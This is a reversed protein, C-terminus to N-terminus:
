IHCLFSLFGVLTGNLICSVNKFDAAFEILGRISEKLLGFFINAIMPYAKQRQENELYNQALFGLIRLCRTKAKRLSELSFPQGGDFECIMTKQGLVKMTAITQLYTLVHAEEFFILIYNENKEKM